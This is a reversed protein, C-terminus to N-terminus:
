GMTKAPNFEAVVDDEDVIMEDDEIGEGIKRVKQPPTEQNGSSPPTPSGQPAQNNIGKSSLFDAYLKEKARTTKEDAIRLKEEQENNYREVILDINTKMERDIFSCVGNKARQVTKNDILRYTIESFQKYTLDSMSFEAELKVEKSISETPPRNTGSFGFSFKTSSESTREKVKEVEGFTDRFFKADEVSIGPFTVINRCNTNVVELFAEGERGSTMVFEKRAQTALLTSVRFSRGQTLIDSFGSNTYKQAEDIYLFNPIRTNENGKRRFIASQLSFILFYGLYSGLERLAGQATTIAIIGGRELHTDFDIQSKGDPPNLVKRLYKNQILKSVQTRIGDANEYVKSRDSFYENLFWDRTDENQKKEEQTLTPLKVLENVLKRGQGNTNHILESLGILTAPRSSIGTAPNTYVEEIRKLVMLSKRMLNNAVGKFYTSSDPTLMEFVTTLTEVVEDEKGDLVNFYPCDPHTPNFYLVDQNYIKGLAYVQEALDGKPEIVTVGLQNRLRNRIDQEILKLLIMSSKGCGTPGICQLHTFRDDGKWVVDEGTEKNKCLVVDYRSAGQMKSYGLTDKVRIERLIAKKRENEHFFLWYVMVVLVLSFMIELIIPINIGFKGGLLRNLARFPVFAYLLMGMRFINFDAVQNEGYDKYFILLLVSIFPYALYVAIPLNRPIFLM